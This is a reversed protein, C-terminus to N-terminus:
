VLQSSFLLKWLLMELNNIEGNVVVVLLLKEAKGSGEEPTLTVDYTGASNRKISFVLNM